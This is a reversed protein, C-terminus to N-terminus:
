RGMFAATGCLIPDPRGREADRVDQELRSGYDALVMLADRVKKHSM